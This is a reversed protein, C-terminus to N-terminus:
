DMYDLQSYDVTLEEDAKVNRLAWFRWNGTKTFHTRLNPTKSHNIYWSLSMRLKSRPCWLKDWAYIGWKNAWKLDDFTKPNKLRWDGKEWLIVEAGKKIPSNAFVGIGHRSPRLEPITERRPM